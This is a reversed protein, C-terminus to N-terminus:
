TKNVKYKKFVFISQRRWATKKTLVYNNQELIQIIEKESYNNVWGNRKKNRTNYKGVTAYSLIFSDIYESLHKILLPVNNVYELVGSFVAYDYHDFMLLPSKNLDLVITGKGRDVIDSPTYVCNKPILNSLVLRGAGFEIVKTNDVIYKSMIKTRGDWDSKLSNTTEWRNLGFTRQAKRSKTNKRSFTNIIINKM